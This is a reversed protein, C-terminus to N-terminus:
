ELGLALIVLLGFLLSQEGSLWCTFGDLYKSYHQLLLCNDLALNSWIDAIQNHGFDFGKFRRHIDKYSLVLLGFPLSREGSLLDEFYKSYTELLINKLNTM